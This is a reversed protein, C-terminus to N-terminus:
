FPLSDEIQQQHQDMLQNWQESKTAHVASDFNELITQIHAIDEGGGYPSVLNIRIKPRGIGAMWTKRNLQNDGETTLFGLYTFDHYKFKRKTKPGRYNLKSQAQECENNIYDSLSKFAKIIQEEFTTYDM